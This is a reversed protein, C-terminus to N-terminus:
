GIKLRARQRMVPAHCAVRVAGGPSNENVEQPVARILGCSRFMGDPRSGRLGTAEHTPGSPSVRLRHRAVPEAGAQRGLGNTLEEGATAGPAALPEAGCRALRRGASAGSLAPLGSGRAGGVGFFRASTTGTALPPRRARRANTSCAI